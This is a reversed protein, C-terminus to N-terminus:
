ADPVDAFAFAVSAVVPPMRESAFAIVNRPLFDDDAQVVIGKADRSNETDTPGQPSTAILAVLTGFATRAVIAKPPAIGDILPIAVAM